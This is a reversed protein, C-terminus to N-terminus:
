VATLLAALLAREVRLGDDDWVLGREALELQHAALWGLLRAVLAFRVEAGTPHRARLEDLLARARAPGDLGDAALRALLRDARRLEDALEELPVDMGARYDIKAPAAFSPVIL